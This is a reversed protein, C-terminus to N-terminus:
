ESESDESPPNKDDLEDKTPQYSENFEKEHIIRHPPKKPLEEVRRLREAEERVRKEEENQSM